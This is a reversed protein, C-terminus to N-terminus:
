LCERQELAFLRLPADVAHGAPAGLFPSPPTVPYYMPCAVMAVMLVVTQIARATKILLPAQELLVEAERFM